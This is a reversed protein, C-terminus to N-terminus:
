KTKGPGSQHRPTLNEEVFDELKRKNSDNMLEPTSTFLFRIFEVVEREGKENEPIQIHKHKLLSSAEKFDAQKESPVGDLSDVLESLHTKLNPM